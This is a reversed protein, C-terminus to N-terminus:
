NGGTAFLDAIKDSLGKSSISKENGNRKNLEDAAMDAGSVPLAHSYLCLDGNPCCGFLFAVCFHTHKSLACIAQRLRQKLNTLKINDILSEDTSGGNGEYNSQNFQCAVDIEDLVDDAILTDDVIVTRLYPNIHALAALTTGAEDGLPTNSLDLYNVRSYLLTECLM